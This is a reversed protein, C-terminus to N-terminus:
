GGERGRHVSSGDHRSRHQNMAATVEDYAAEEEEDQKVAGDEEKTVRAM